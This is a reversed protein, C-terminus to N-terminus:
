KLKEQDPSFSGHDLHNHHPARTMYMYCFAGSDKGLWLNGPEVEYVPGHISNLFLRAHRLCWHDSGGQEFRIYVPFRDADELTLQPNGPDNAEPRLVNSVGGFVFNWSSGREFLNGTRDCRFERGCVGLYVAGDTGADALDATDIQIMMATLPTSGFGLGVVREELQHIRQLLSQISIGQITLNRTIDVDGEFFGALRGGKGHIGIGSPSSGFVASGGQHHHGMVGAGGTTSHTEGFVAVWNKSVGWVGVGDSEGYVGPGADFSNIGVVPRYPKISPEQGDQYVVISSVRDNWTLPVVPTDTKIDIFEGRFLSHEYLRAVLGPSVKLSSLTDNGISFQGIQNDYQGETLEQSHGQFNEHEFITVPM